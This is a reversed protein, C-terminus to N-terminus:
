DGTFVGNNGFSSSRPRAEDAERVGGGPTLVFCRFGAPFQTLVEFTGNRAMVYRNRQAAIAEKSARALAQKQTM